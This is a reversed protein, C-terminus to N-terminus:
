RCLLSKENAYSLDALPPVGNTVFWTQRQDGLVNGCGRASGCFFEWASAICAETCDKQQDEHLFPGREPHWIRLPLWLLLLTHLPWRPTSSLKNHFLLRQLHKGLDSATTGLRLACSCGQLVPHVLPSSSARAAARKHLWWASVSFRGTCAGPTEPTPAAEKAPVMQKLTECLQM